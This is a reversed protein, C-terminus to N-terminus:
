RSIGENAMLVKLEKALTDSVHPPSFLAQLKGAPNILLITGSHDIVKQGAANLVPDKWSYVRCSKAIKIVEKEDGTLGIFEPNFRNLFTKLETVGDSQPDLSVFVFRAKAKAHTQPKNRFLDSVIALTRPCIEPCQAYGFFLLTWHGQFTQETFVKNHTDLLSFTELTKAPQLVTASGLESATSAQQSVQPSSQQAQQNEFVPAKNLIPNIGYWALFATTLGFIITLLIRKVSVM